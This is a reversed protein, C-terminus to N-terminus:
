HQGVPDPTSKSVMSKCWVGEGGSYGEYVASYCWIGVVIILKDENGRCNGQAQCADLRDLVKQNDAIYQLKGHHPQVAVEPLFADLEKQMGLNINRIASSPPIAASLFAWRDQLFSTATLGALFGVMLSFPNFIRGSNALM